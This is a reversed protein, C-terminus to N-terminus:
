AYIVDEDAINKEGRFRLFVRALTLVDKCCYRAIRDIDKEQWYVAGVMSGDIDDKPTPINFLHALLNLSTFSKRDGFKWLELTDLHPVEWPKKGQIDLLKPLEIGNVMMRRALYPFDFEKGNHACLLYNAGNFSRNLLNAFEQLLIKEDDHCYSKVRFQPGDKGRRIFGVGVCVIKGFEAYISAQEYVEAETQQEKVLSKAKRKWLDQWEPSLDDYNKHASVTEIDIFIINELLVQKINVGDM